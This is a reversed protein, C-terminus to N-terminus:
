LLEEGLEFLKAKSYIQKHPCHIANPLSHSLRLNTASEEKRQHSGQSKKLHRLSHERQVREIPVNDKYTIGQWIFDTAQRDM